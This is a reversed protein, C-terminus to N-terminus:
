NKKQNHGSLKLIAYFELGGRLTHYMKHLELRILNLSNLQRIIQTFTEPTFCSVHTDIYVGSKYRELVPQYNQQLKQEPHITGHEGNWHAAADNHTILTVQRLVDTLRPRGNKEYYLQLVDFIDTEKRFYDFCYRKDPIIIYVCGDPQLLGELNNLFTVVCPMHEISHSSFVSNFTETIHTYDNNQIVYTPEIINEKKVSPDTKYNEILQAKNFVDLSFYNPSDFDLQPNDLPGIELMKGETPILDVFDKRSKIHNYLRGESIGHALFHNKLSEKDLTALDTNVNKYTTADFDCLTLYSNDM